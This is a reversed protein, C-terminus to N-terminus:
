YPLRGGLRNAFVVVVLGVVSAVVWPLLMYRVISGYKGPFKTVLAAAQGVIATPPTLSSYCALISLGVIALVPDRDLFALTVPIGFVTGSGYSGLLSGAIAFGFFTFAYLGWTPLTIATIVFLGRVGTLTMVEVFAGVGVLISAVKMAEDISSATVRFPNANRALAFALVAGAAFTLPVGLDFTGAPLLRAATMAGLVAVLPAYTAFAGPLPQGSPAELRATLDDVDVSKRLHRAGLFWASLLGLPISIAALWGDLGVYPMNIGNAMAMAPINVPPAISGAIGGIALIAVARAQPIGLQMLVTGVLGGVALVAATGSGTLAGPLMVVLTMVSLLAFPRGRFARVTDRIMVTLAGTGRLAGVFITATFIVLILDFFMFSGEVLTRLPVGLGAALTGVAAAVTLSLVHPVGRWWLLVFSGIMVAGVLAIQV